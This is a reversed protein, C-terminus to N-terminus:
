NYLILTAILDGMQYTIINNSSEMYNHYGLTTLKFSLKFGTKCKLDKNVDPINYSLLLDTNNISSHTSLLCLSPSIDNNLKICTNYEVYVENDIEEITPHSNAYLKVLTLNHKPLDEIDVRTTNNLKTIM